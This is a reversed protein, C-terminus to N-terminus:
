QEGPDDSDDKDSLSDLAPPLVFESQTTNESIQAAAVNSDDTNDALVPAAPPVAGFLVLLQNRSLAESMGGNENRSAILLDGAPEDPSSESPGNPSQIPEAAKEHVGNRSNGNQNHNELFPAQKPRENRCLLQRSFAGVLIALTM